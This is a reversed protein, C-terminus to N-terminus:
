SGRSRGTSLWKFVEYFVLSNAYDIKRSLSWVVMYFYDKYILIECSSGLVAYKLITLSVNFYVM